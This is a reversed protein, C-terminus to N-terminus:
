VKSKTHLLIRRRNQVIVMWNSPVYNIAKELVDRCHRMNRPNHPDIDGRCITRIMPKDALVIRYMKEIKLQEVNPSYSEPKGIM